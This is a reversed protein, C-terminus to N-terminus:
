KANPSNIEMTGIYRFDLANDYSYEPNRIMDVLYWLLAGFVVIVTAYKLYGFLKRIRKWLKFGFTNPPLTDVKQTNMLEGYVSEYEKHFAAFSSLEGIEARELLDALPVCSQAELEKKFLMELILLFRERIEESSVDELRDPERLYYNFYVTGSADVRVNHQELAEYQLYPPIQLFLIRQILSRATQLRETLSAENELRKELVEYDYYRFVVYLFSDKPFYDLLDDFFLNQEQKALFPIFRRIDYAKKFIILMCKGAERRDTERGILVDMRDSSEAKQLIEYEKNLTQIRM